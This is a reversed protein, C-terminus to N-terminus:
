RFEQELFLIYEEESMGFKKRLKKLVAHLDKNADQIGELTSEIAYLKELERCSELSPYDRCHKM